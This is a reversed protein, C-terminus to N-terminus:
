LNQPLTTFHETEDWAGPFEALPVLVLTQTTTEGAFVQLGTVAIQAYGELGAHLDVVAFPREGPDPSQSESLPPTPIEIPEIAGSRDTLRLAIATGDTATVAIAM